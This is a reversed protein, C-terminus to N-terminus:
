TYKGQDPDKEERKATGAFTKARETDGSKIKEIARAAKDRLDGFM